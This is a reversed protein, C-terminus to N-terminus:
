KEMERAVWAAFDKVAKDSAVEGFTRVAAAQKALGCWRLQDLCFMVHYVNQSFGIQKLLADTWRARLKPADPCRPRMVLQSVAGIQIRVIPDTTYAEKVEALLARAAEDSALFKRLVEPETAAAVEAKHADQWNVTLPFEKTNAMGAGYDAFPNPDKAGAAVTPEFTPPEEVKNTACGAMLGVALVVGLINRKM